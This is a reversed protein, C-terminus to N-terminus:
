RLAGLHAFATLVASAVGKVSFLTDLWRSTQSPRDVASQASRDLGAVEASSGAKAAALIQDLDNIMSESELQEVVQARLSQCFDGFAEVDVTKEVAPKRLEELLAQAGNASSQIAREHLDSARGHSAAGLVGGVGAAFRAMSVSFDVVSLPFTLALSAGVLGVSLLGSGLKARRQSEEPSSGERHVLSYILNGLFNSGMPLSTPPTEQMRRLDERACWADGILIATRTAAVILLPTAAGATAVTLAVAVGLTLLSAVTSVQKSVFVAKRLDVGAVEARAKAEAWGKVLTAVKEPSVHVQALGPGRVAAHAAQEAAEAQPRSLASRAAPLAGQLPCPGWGPPTDVAPRAQPPAPSSALRRYAMAGEM